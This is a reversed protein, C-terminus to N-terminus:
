KDLFEQLAIELGEAYTIGNLQCLAKFKRWLEEDVGKVQAFIKIRGDPGRAKFPRGMKKETM